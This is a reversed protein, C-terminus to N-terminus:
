PSAFGAVDGRHLGYYALLQFNQTALLRETNLRAQKALTRIKEDSLDGVEAPAYRAPTVTLVLISAFSDDTRSLAYFIAKRSVHQAGLDFSQLAAEATGKFSELTPADLVKWSSPVSIRVAVTPSFTASSPDASAPSEFAAGLAIAFVVRMFPAGKELGLKILAQM